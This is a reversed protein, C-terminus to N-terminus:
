IFRCARPDAKSRIKSLTGVLAQDYGETGKHLNSPARHKLVVLYSAWSRQAHSLILSWLPSPSPMSLLLSPTSVKKYHANTDFLLELELIKGSPLKLIKTGIAEAQIFEGSADFLEFDNKNLSKIKQLSQLSKYFHSGCTTDLVWSDSFLTSLSLNTQIMYLSKAINVSKM